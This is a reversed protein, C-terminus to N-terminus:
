SNEKSYITKWPGFGGIQLITDKKTWTYHELNAPIMTFDGANVRHGKTLDKQHGLGIYLTGSIVTDYENIPHRHPPIFYHGPLKIRVVFPEHKEPDGSLIAMKAGAPMNELDVWKLNNSNVVKLNMTSSAETMNSLFISLCIAIVSKMQINKM